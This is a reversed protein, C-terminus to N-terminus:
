LARPNAFFVRDSSSHSSTRIAWGSRMWRGITSFSSFTIRALGASDTFSSRYGEISFMVLLPQDQSGAKQTEHEKGWVRDRGRLFLSVAGISKRIADLSSLADTNSKTPFLTTLGERRIMGFLQGASCVALVRPATHKLVQESVSKGHGDAYQTLQDVGIIALSFRKVLLRVWM